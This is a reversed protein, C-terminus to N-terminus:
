SRRKYDRQKKLGSLLYYLSYTINSSKIIFTVNLPCLVDLIVNYILRFDVYWGVFICALWCVMVVWQDIQLCSVFRVSILSSVFQGISCQFRFDPIDVWGGVWIQSTHVSLIPILAPGRSKCSTPMQFSFVGKLRKGPLASVSHWLM